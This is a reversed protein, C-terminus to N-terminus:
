TKKSRALSALEQTDLAHIGLVQNINRKRSIEAFESCFLPDKSLSFSKYSVLENRHRDFAFGSSHKLIRGRKSVSAFAAPFHGRSQARLKRSTLTIDVRDMNEDPREPNKSLLGNCM